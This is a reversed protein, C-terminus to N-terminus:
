LVLRCGDLREYGWKKLLLLHFILAVFNISQNNARFTYKYQPCSNLQELRILDLFTGGGKITGGSSRKVEKTLKGSASLHQTKPFHWHYRSPPLTSIHIAYIFLAIRRDLTIATIFHLGVLRSNAVLLLPESACQM